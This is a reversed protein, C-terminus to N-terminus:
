NRESLTRSFVFGKDGFVLLFLGISVTVGSIGLPILFNNATRRGAAALGADGQTGDNYIMWMVGCYTMIAAGILMVAVGTVRM